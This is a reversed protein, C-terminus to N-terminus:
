GLHVRGAVASSFTVTIQTTSDYKISANIVAGSVDRLTVRPYGGLAHTIVWTTASAFTFDYLGSAVYGTGPVATWVGTSPDRTYQIGTSSDIYTTAPPTDGRPPGDGSIIPVPRPADPFDYAIRWECILGSGDNNLYSGDGWETHSVVRGTGYTDWGGDVGVDSWGAHVYRNEQPIHGPTYVAGRLPGTAGFYYGVTVWAVLVSGPLLALSWDIGVSGGPAGDYATYMQKITVPTDPDDAYFGTMIASTANLGAFAITPSLTAPLPNTVPDFVQHMVYLYANGGAIDDYDRTWGVPPPQAFVTANERRIGVFAIFGRTVDLTPSVPMAVSGVGPRVERYVINTQFAVEAEAGTLEFAVVGAGGRGALSLYDPEEGGPVYPVANKPFLSLGTIWHGDDYSEWTIGTITWLGSSVAVGSADVLEAGFSDSGWAMTDVAGHKIDVQVWDCIDFGELPRYSGLRLGVAIQRGFAAADTAAQLTRRVLDPRDDTEIIQAGQSIRGWEQELAAGARHEYNVKLGDKDRSIFNVRSAWSAGFPIVRYGQVLEGYRLALAERLEGPDNEVRVKYEDGVKVVRIRTYKGSGARYSNILGVCFSLTDRFTSYLTKIKYAGANMEDPISGYRIFGVPSDPLGIAYNLQDRIIWKITKGSYKSGEPAKTDITVNSTPDFREDIVYQFLALYDIGYFVVETDTADMDWIMGAWTEVWSASPQDWFELTAHTKKPQPVGINPDDVLLTFHLEGPSNYNISAGALHPNPRYLTAIVEGPGRQDGDTGTPAVVTVDGYGRDNTWKYILKGADPGSTLKYFSGGTPFWADLPRGTEGIDGALEAWHNLPLMVSEYTYPGGAAAHETPPYIVAGTTGAHWLLTRDNITLGAGVGGGKMGKILIRWDALPDITPVGAAIAAHQEAPTGTNTVLISGYHRENTWFYVYRGSNPGETLKYFSGGTPYWANHGDDVLQQNFNNHLQVPDVVFPGGAAAHETPPIVLLGDSTTHWVLTSALFTVSVTM